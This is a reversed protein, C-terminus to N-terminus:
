RGLKRMAEKIKDYNTQPEESITEQKIKNRMEQTINISTEKEKVFNEYREKEQQKDLIEQKKERIMDRLVISVNQRFFKVIVNELHNQDEFKIASILKELKLHNRNLTILILDWSYKQHFNRTKVTDSITQLMRVWFWSSFSNVFRTETDQKDYRPGKCETPVYDKYNSIDLHKNCLDLLIKNIENQKEKGKHAEQVEKPQALLFYRKREEEFLKKDDETWVKEKFLRNVQRTILNKENKDAKIYAEALITPNTEKKVDLLVDGKKRCSLTHWLM